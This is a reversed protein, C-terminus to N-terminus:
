RPETGAGGPLREPGPVKSARELYGGYKADERALEDLRRQAAVSRPTLRGGDVMLGQPGRDGLGRSDAAPADDRADRREVTRLRDPLNGGSAARAEHVPGSPTPPRDSPM